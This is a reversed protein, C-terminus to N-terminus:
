FRGVVAVKHDGLDPATLSPLKSFFDKMRGTTQMYPFDPM